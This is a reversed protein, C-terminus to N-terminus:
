ATWCLKCPRSPEGHCDSFVRLLVLALADKPGADGHFVGVGDDQVTHHITTAALVPAALLLTAALVSRIM